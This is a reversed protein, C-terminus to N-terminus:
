GILSTIISNCDTDSIDDFMRKISAIVDDNNNAEQIYQKKVLRDDAMFDFKDM